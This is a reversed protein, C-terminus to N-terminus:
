RRCTGYATKSERKEADGFTAKKKQEAHAMEKRGKNAVFINRRKIGDQKNREVEKNQTLWRAQLEQYIYKTM